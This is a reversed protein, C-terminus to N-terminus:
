YGPKSRVRNHPASPFSLEFANGPLRRYTLPAGSSPDCFLKPLFAPVLADLTEPCTGKECRYLKLALATGYHARYLLAKRLASRQADELSGPKGGKPVVGSRIWEPAMRELELTKRLHRAVDLCALPYVAARKWFGFKLPYSGLKGRGFGRIERSERAQLWAELPMQVPAALFRALMARYLAAYAPDEPGCSVAMDLRTAGVAIRVLAEIVATEHELMTRELKEMPELLPLIEAKRGQWHALAAQAACIRAASRYGVLLTQAKEVEFPEEAAIRCCLDLYERNRAFFAKGEPSAAFKLAQERGAAPVPREDGPQWTCSGAIPLFQGAGECMTKNLAARLEKEQKLIEGLVGQRPDETIKAGGLVIGSYIYTALAAAGWLVVPLLLIALPVIWLLAKKKVKM